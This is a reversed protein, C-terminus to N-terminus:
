NEGKIIDLYDDYLMKYILNSSHTDPAYEDFGKFNYIIRERKCTSKICHNTLKNIYKSLRKLDDIKNNVMFASCFSNYKEKFDKDLDIKKNTGIICHYHERETTKGYDINLIYKFDFQNICKKIANLKTRRCKNIMNDSFTFTCFWIYKYEYFLYFLRKKVRSVKMYRACLIREYEDNKPIIIGNNFAIKKDKNYQIVKNLLEIDKNM